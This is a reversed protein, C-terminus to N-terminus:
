KLVISDLYYDELIGKQHYESREMDLIENSFINKLELMSSRLPVNLMVALSIPIGKKRSSDKAIFCFCVGDNM